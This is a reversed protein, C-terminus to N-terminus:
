LFSVGLSIGLVERGYKEIARIIDAVPAACVPSTGGGPPVFEVTLRSIRNGAGYWTIAYTGTGPFVREIACRGNRLGIRGSTLAQQLAAIQAESGRASARATMWPSTSRFTGTVSGDATGDTTIFFREHIVDTRVVRFTLEAEVSLLPTQNFPPPPAPQAQVPAWAALLAGLGIWVSVLRM